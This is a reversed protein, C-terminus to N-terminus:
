GEYVTERVADAGDEYGKNFGDVFGAAVAKEWRPRVVETLHDVLAQRDVTKLDVKYLSDWMLQGLESPLDYTIKDTDM